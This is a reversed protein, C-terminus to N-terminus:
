TFDCSRVEPDDNGSSLLECGSETVLVDDEIRFGIGWEKVYVGPEVALCNGAQLASDKVSTDHVDLGMHHSTNHWYYESVIKDDNGEDKSSMQILGEKLLWKYCIGRMHTNLEKLTIGPRIYSFAESRLERILTLLSEKRKEFVEDESNGVFLVRSIDACYGDYRGGLDIQIIDGKKVKVDDPTGHHLYFVNEGVAAITGFAPILVGRRAMEYELKTFIQLESMGPCLVKKLEDVAEETIKIAERIASVEEPKKIMRMATLTKQIDILEESTRSKLTNVVFDKNSTKVSSGDYGILVSKDQLISFIRDDVTERDFIDEVPIGSIESFEEHTKRKGHWREKLSDKEPVFLSIETRDERKCIILVIDEDSIGTLYYFNRDPLFRYDNDASMRDARGAFLVLAINEDVARLLGERNDKFFSSGIM